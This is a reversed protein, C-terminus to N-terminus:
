ALRNGDQSIQPWSLSDFGAEQGVSMGDQPEASVGASFTQNFSPSWVLLLKVLGFPPMSM